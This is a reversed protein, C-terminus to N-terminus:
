RTPSTLRLSREAARERSLREALHAHRAHLQERSPEPVVARTRRSWTILALGLHLAARDAVTVRRPRARQEVRSPPHQYKQEDIQTSLVTNM